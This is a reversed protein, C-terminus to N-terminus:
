EAESIREVVKQIAEEGSNCPLYNTKVENGNSYKVTIGSKGSFSDNIYYGSYDEANSDRFDYWVGHDYLLATYSIDKENVYLAYMFDDLNEGGFEAELYDGPDPNNQLAAGSTFAMRYNIAKGTSSNHEEATYNLGLESILSELEAPTIDAYLGLFVKQLEDYEIVAAPEEPEEKDPEAEQQPEAATESEKTEEEQVTDGMADKMGQKFSDGCATLSLVMAAMLLMSLVKKM